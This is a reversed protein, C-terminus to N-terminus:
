VQLTAAWDLAQRCMCATAFWSESVSTLGWACVGMGQQLYGQLLRM